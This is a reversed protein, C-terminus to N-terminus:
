KYRVVETAKSLMYDMWVRQMWPPTQWLFNSKFRARVDKDFHEVLISSMSYYQIFEILTEDSIASAFYPSVELLKKLTKPDQQYEDVKQMRGGILPEFTRLNM